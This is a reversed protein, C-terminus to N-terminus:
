KGCLCDGGRGPDGHDGADFGTAPRYHRNVPDHGKPVAGEVRCPEGLGRDREQRQPPLHGGGHPGDCLRHGHLYAPDYHRRGLGWLPFGIHGGVVGLKDLNRNEYHLLRERKNQLIHQEHPCCGTETLKGTVYFVDIKEALGDTLGLDILRKLTHYLM